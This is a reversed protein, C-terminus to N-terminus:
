KWWGKLTFGSAIYSVESVYNMASLYATLTTTTLENLTLFYIGPSEVSGAFQIRKDLDITLEEPIPASITTFYMKSSNSYQLRVTSVDLNGCLEFTGDNYKKLVYQRTSIGGLLGTYLKYSNGNLESLGANTENIASVLDTKEDTTLATLNGIEMACENIAAVLNTKATTVLNDLVGIMTFLVNGQRADLVYGDSTQTLVNSVGKFAATGLDSFWKSTKGFLTSVTEGSAVNDRTSAQEFTVPTTDIDEASGPDGKPGQPGQAGTPIVFNLVPNQATGSNTVAAQSGPEGTTTSGVTVTSSFDGAEAKAEIEEAASNAAEAATNAAQAAEQLQGFLNSENKSEEGDGDTYNRFVNVPQVFTVLNDDGSMIQLQLKNFGVEAFMQTTVDVTVDNGSITAANYVALGSPKQVFVQATAGAPIQFDRFHFILPIANTNQVYDVDNKIKKGLIYVDREIQAM